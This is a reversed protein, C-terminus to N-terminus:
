EGDDEAKEPQPKGKVTHRQEYEDWEDRMTRRHEPAFAVITEKITVSGNRYGANHNLEFDDKGGVGGEFGLTNMIDALVFRGDPTALVARWHTEREKNAEAQLRQANAVQAPDSANGVHARPRGPM